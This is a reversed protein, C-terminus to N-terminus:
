DMTGKTDMVNLENASSPCMVSFQSFNTSSISGWVRWTKGNADILFGNTCDAEIRWRKGNGEGIAYADSTDVGRIERVTVPCTKRPCTFFIKSSRDQNPSRAEAIQFGNFIAATVLTGSLWFKTVISLTRSVRLCEFSM